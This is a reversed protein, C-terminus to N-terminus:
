KGRNYRKEVVERKRKKGGEREELAGRERKFWLILKFKKGL